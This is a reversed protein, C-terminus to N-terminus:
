DPDKRNALNCIKPNVNYFPMVQTRGTELNRMTPNVDYLNYIQTKEIQWIAYRLTSM